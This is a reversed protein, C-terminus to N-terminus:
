IASQFFPWAYFVANKQCIFANAARVLFLATEKDCELIVFDNPATLDLCQSSPFGEILEKVVHLQLPHRLMGKAICM